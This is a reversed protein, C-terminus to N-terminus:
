KEKSIMGGALQKNERGTIGVTNDVFLDTFKSISTNIKLSRQTIM